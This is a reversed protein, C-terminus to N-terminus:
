AADLEVVEEGAPHLLLAEWVEGAETLTAVATHVKEGHFYVELTATTPPCGDARCATLGGQGYLDVKAQFRDDAPAAITITEPGFGDIVDWDLSPDDALVGAGGWDPMPNCWTCDKRSWLAEGVRVLHLDLDVETDWTLQLYFADEPVVEITVVDEHKSRLGLTNTVTLGVQYTGAIDAFFTPDFADARDIQAHSGPPVSVLRWMPILDLGQPDSSRSGDLVVDTLPEGFHDEGANATPARPDAPEERIEQPPDQESPIPKAGAEICASLLLAPLLSLVTPSRTM